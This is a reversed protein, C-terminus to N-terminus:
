YTLISSKISGVKRLLTMTPQPLVIGDEAELSFGVKSM